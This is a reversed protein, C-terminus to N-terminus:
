AHRRLASRRTPGRRVLLRIEAGHLQDRLIAALEAKEVDFVEDAFTLDNVYCLHALATEAHQAAIRAINEAHQLKTLDARRTAPM